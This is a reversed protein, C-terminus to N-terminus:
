ELPSIYRYMTASVDHGFLLDLSLFRRQEHLPGAGRGGPKGPHVYETSESFIFIADPRLDLIARMALMSAKVNHKINNVFAVDSM